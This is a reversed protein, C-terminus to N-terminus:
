SVIEQGHTTELRPVARADPEIPLSFYFTAGHDKTADAWVRGGHRQIIRRVNALGIGTGEFEDPRHLRQFVGFLKAQYKMDFGVGNDRVFVVVENDSGTAVGVEISARPRTGTYKVANSLLNVMVSRLMTPDGRVTPLPHIAWDIARRSPYLLVEARAEEVLRDLSVAKKAIAMRGLRSFALLDDILRTMRVAAAGITALYHRGEEDFTSGGHASLLGVFGSIHRVPARLDHSVSYSFAELEQNVTTLEATRENVRHELQNRSEQLSANQREIQGLMENIAGTLVGLENAGVPGTARISYDKEQSVRQALAALRAMPESISRQAVRSVALAALLSAVVVLSIIAAYRNLRSYLDHLDSRIYVTGAHIDQFSIARVVMIGSSGLWDVRTQETDSMRAPVTDDHGSARRYAAFLGGDRDYIGAEIISPAGALAKLTGGASLTDNFLLASVANSGVIRAQVTLNQVMTNRFTVIDYVVLAASALLLATGSVLLNMWTLRSSLSNGRARAPATTGM